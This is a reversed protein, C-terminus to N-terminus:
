PMALLRHLHEAVEDVITLAEPVMGGLRIFGHIMGEAELLEVRVGYHELLGAYAVDEDRLPDCTAIVVIAEPVDDLNRGFLPSVRPDMPDRGQLYQGYDYRLHELDIGYGQDFEHASATMLQPGLTPYFLVQGAPRAPDRALASAAATALTAGASDGMVVIPAGEEALEGRCAFAARVADIADEVAAPFPSEPARRYDVAVIRVGTDKALRRCVGDHTDLDGLVYSGGHFYVVLGSGAAARPVYLRAPIPGHGADLTLERTERMEEPAPWQALAERRFEERRQDISRTAPHPRPADREAAVASALAPHVRRDM